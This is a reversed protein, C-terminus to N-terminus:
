SASENNHRDAAMTRCLMDFSETGEIPASPVPRPPATTRMSRLSVSAISSQNFDAAYARNFVMGVLRAGLQVLHDTAERIRSSQVGRGVVLIVGDAVSAAINAELSGLIPGTDVIITDYKDRMQRILGEFLEPTVRSQFRIDNTGAPMLELGPVATAVVRHEGQAFVLDHGV